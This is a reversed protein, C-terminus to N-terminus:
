DKHMKKLLIQRQKEDLTQKVIMEKENAKQNIQHRKTNEIQEMKRVVDQRYAEKDALEQQHM